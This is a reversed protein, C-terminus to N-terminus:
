AQHTYSSLLFVETTTAPAVKFLHVLHMELKGPLPQFVLHSECSLSSIIVTEEEGGRRREMLKQKKEGM